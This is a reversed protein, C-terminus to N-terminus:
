EINPVMNGGFLISSMDDVARYGARFPPTGLGRLM